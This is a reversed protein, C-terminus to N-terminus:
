ERLFARAYSYLRNSKFKSSLFISPTTLFIGGVILPLIFDSSQRAKDGAFRHRASQRQGDV